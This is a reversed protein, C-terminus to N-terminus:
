IRSDAVRRILEEWLGKGIGWGRKQPVAGGQSLSGRFINVPSILTYIFPGQVQIGKEWM